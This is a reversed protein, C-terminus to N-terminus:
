ELLVCSHAEMQYFTLSRKVAWLFALWVSTLGPEGWPLFREVDEEEKKKVKGKEGPQTFLFTWLIIATKDSHLFPIPVGTFHRAKQSLSSFLLLRNWLPIHELVAWSWKFLPPPAENNLVGVGFVMQCQTRNFLVHLLTCTMAMVLFTFQKVIDDPASQPFLFLSTLKLASQSATPPGQSVLISIYAGVFCSKRKSNM